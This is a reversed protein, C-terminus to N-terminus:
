WREGAPRLDLEFTWASQPQRVLFYVAEAVDDARMFADDARQPMRERTRPTDIVGDVIVLAVHINEAGLKRAMSQALSRQAAKASAFATFNAGGRLSATAGTVILAGGGRARLDPLVGQACLLLGLTNVQWAATLTDPDTADIDGWQGGGANYLLVEVPGLQERVAGLARTVSAADTVDCAFAQADGVDAALAALRSEDRALLAVRYGAQKFRRAFAAGNGPGAGAIVCVPVQEDAADM